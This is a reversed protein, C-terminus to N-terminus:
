IAYRNRINNKLEDRTIFQNKPTDKRQDLIKIQEDSFYADVTM